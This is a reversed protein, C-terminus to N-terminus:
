QKNIIQPKQTHTTQATQEFAIQKRIPSTIRKHKHIQHKRTRNTKFEATQIHINQSNQPKISYQSHPKSQSNNSFKTKRIYCKTHFQNRM